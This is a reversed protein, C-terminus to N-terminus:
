FCDPLSTLRWIGDLGRELEWDRDVMEADGNRRVELHVEVMARGDEVEPVTRGKLLVDSGRAFLAQIEEESIPGAVFSRLLASNKERCAQIAQEVTIGPDGAPSLDGQPTATAVVVPAAPTAPADGDGGACSGLLPLAIAIATM